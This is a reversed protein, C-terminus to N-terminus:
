HHQYKRANKLKIDLQITLIVGNPFKKNPINKHPLFQQLNHFTLFNGRIITNFQWPKLIAIFIYLVNNFVDHNIM